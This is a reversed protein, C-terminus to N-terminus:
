ETKLFASALDSKIWGIKKGRTLIEQFLGTLALL